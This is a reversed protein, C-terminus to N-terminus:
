AYSDHVAQIEAQHNLGMAAMALDMQAMTEKLEKNEIRMAQINAVSRDRHRQAAAKNNLAIQAIQEPNKAIKVPVPSARKKTTAKKKESADSCGSSGPMPPPPPPLMDGGPVFSSTSAGLFDTNEFMEQFVCCSGFNYNESELDAPTMYVQKHKTSGANFHLQHDPTSPLGLSTGTSWRMDETVPVPAPIFDNINAQVPSSPRYFLIDEMTDVSM